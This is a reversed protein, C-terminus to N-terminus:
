PGKRVLAVFRTSVHPQQRYDTSFWIRGTAIGTQDAFRIYVPLLKEESPFLVAPLGELTTCGCDSRGGIVHVSEGTDNRLRAQVIETSNATVRGLWWVEKEFSLQKPGTLSFSSLGVTLIVMLTAPALLRVVLNRQPLSTTKSFFVVGVIFLDITVLDM